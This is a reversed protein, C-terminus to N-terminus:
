YRKQYIEKLTMSKIQDVFAVLNSIMLEWMKEGKEVTARTPDGMVGSASIKHTHAYWAVGRKSTFDLYRSTFEPVEMQLRDMRVLEPRIALSTSTEIEGAHVDNPTEILGDVDVDSTEGTDVCVFIRADQNIRQAAFNLSPSNGGHGNIIVLKQIGNKALSIGVDYVLNALTANNISITGKFAEHHYSVGYAILPLVLPKPESCGEAVKKALYEADFADTDLPLHPGHQEVAGVPLLATDVIDLRAAADPWCLEGWYFTAPPAATKEQEGADTKSEFRYPAQMGAHSFVEVPQWKAGQREVAGDAFELFIRYLDARLDEPIGDIPSVQPDFRLKLIEPHAKAAAAIEEPVSVRGSRALLYFLQNAEAEAQAYVGKEFLVKLCQTTQDATYGCRSPDEGMAILMGVIRRCKECKGCPRIREGAKHAAHCSTQHEQLHPYRKALIKEILLESLPRLVSFQTLAWGKRQFYRSLVVDFWISQDFLGDYHRIGSTTVRRSTDFEDGIILRGIGRKRVLPLVGFLFVAVTWLRIPYEDARVGTFDSRIFPMRRLMWSFFRDANIWVRATNPVNDRFHRYANLATFWHRGSENVFISHVDKGIEDLLGFSLLSDKGGSSLICYRGSDTKWSALHNHRARDPFVLRARLFGKPKVAPLGVADGILFPNPELFKKVYIERATNEAMERLFRRDTKEFLGYLVIERCFLGYNLAVQAAIMAALNHSEPSRPDFVKEEYTCILETQEVKEGIVLRYPAVLRREELKVPGMELRDFVQLVDPLEDQQSHERTDAASM